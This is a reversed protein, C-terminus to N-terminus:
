LGALLIQCKAALETRRRAHPAAAVHLSSPSEEIRQQLLMGAFRFDDLIRDRFQFSFLRLQCPLDTHRFLALDHGRGGLVALRMSLFAMPSALHSQYVSPPLRLSSPIDGFRLLKPM